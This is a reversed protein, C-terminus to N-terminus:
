QQPSLRYLGGPDEDTVVWITGDGAVKVDRIRGIEPQLREEGTVRDGDVSLRVLSPPNLAGLLLDGQWEAFLQGDYFDAGSPAIVPDWYYIPQEMGERASIGENVPSGDYNYGYSIVPWGYNLGAEPKNIEDGGMPGHEITWLAGDPGITAAQVNRLGSAYIEPLAQSGDAYPNDSPVSGDPTIRILKGLHNQMDQASDRIPVDSREGLTIFLNGDPAPVVRSGFHKDGDYTPTQRFIVQVDSVSAGDQALVMRAVSTGNGGDRPEAYSLFIVRSEDFDPSLAVDLLGGQGGADVEPIGSVDTVTGDAYYKLRGPRETVLAANGPLLEVAWPNVLGEIVPEVKLTVGSDMAEARTQEPFAPEFDTNPEAQPWPAAGAATASLLAMAATTAFIRM